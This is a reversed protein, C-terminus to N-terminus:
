PGASVVQLPECLRIDRSSAGVEVHFSGPELHWDNRTECFWAFDRYGLEFCLEIREGPQLRCKATAM